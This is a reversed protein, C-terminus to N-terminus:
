SFMGNVGSERAKKLLYTYRKETAGMMYIAHDVLDPDSVTEFYAQSNLWETRAHKVSDALTPMQYAATPPRSEGFKEAIQRVLNILRKAM